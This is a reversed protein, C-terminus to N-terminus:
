ETEVLGLEKLCLNEAEFVLAIVEDTIEIGRAKALEHAKGFVDKEDLLIYEEMIVGKVNFTPAWKTSKPNLAITTNNRVRLVLSDLIFFGLRINPKEKIVKMQSIM